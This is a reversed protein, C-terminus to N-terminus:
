KIGERLDLEQIAVAKGRWRLVGIRAVEIAAALALLGNASPRLM